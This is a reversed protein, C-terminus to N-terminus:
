FLAPAKRQGGLSTIDEQLKRIDNNFKENLTGQTQSLWQEIVPTVASSLDSNPDIKVTFTPENISISGNVTLDLPTEPKEIQVKGGVDVKNLSNNKNQPNYNKWYELLKQRQAPDQQMTQDIAPTYYRKREAEIKEPTSNFLKAQAAAVNAPLPKYGNTNAKNDLNKNVETIKGNLSQLQSEFIKISSTANEIASKSVELTTVQENYQDILQKVPDSGQINARKLSENSVPKSGSISKLIDQLGARRQEFARPSEFIGKNKFDMMPDIKEQIKPALLGIQENATKVGNKAGAQSIIAQSKNKQADVQEQALISKASAGEIISKLSDISSALTDGISQIASNITNNLDTTFTAQEKQIDKLITTIEDVNQGINQDKILSEIQTTAIERSRSAIDRYVKGSGPSKRAFYNAQNKIDQSRGSIAREKLPGLSGLLKENVSGGAFQVIESLLGAAGRGSSVKGPSKYMNSYQDFSEKSKQFSGQDLFGQIGGATSTDRRIQLIRQQINLNDAAIINAKKAEESLTGIQQNQSRTSDALKQQIQLTKDSSGGLNGIEKSLAGQTESPTLNQRSIELLRDNFSKLQENSLAQNDGEKSQNLEKAFSRVDEFMSQKSSAQINRVNKYLDENRQLKSIQSRVQNLSEGSASNEYLGVLNDARNLKTDRTNASNQDKFNQRFTESKIANDILNELNNNLGDLAVRARSAAKETELIKKMEADRVPSIAEIQKATNKAENASLFLATVFKSVNQDGMRNYISMLDENKLGLDKLYSILEPKKVDLLSVNIKEIAKDADELSNLFEKAATGPSFGGSKFIDGYGFTGAGLLENAKNAFDTVREKKNKEAQIRNIEEQLKKGDTISLLYARYENPLDKASSYLEKNLKVITDLSSKPDSYAENLKQLTDTYKQTSSAFKATEEKIKELNKGIQEGNDRFTKALFATASYLAAAGGAVLGIPGPILGVATLATGMGQSLENINNSLAKNDGVLQNAFGGILSIAFSAYVSKERFGELASKMNKAPEGISKIEKSSSSASTTLDKMQIDTTRMSRSLIKMVNTMGISEQSNMYTGTTASFPNSSFNPVFGLASAGKQLAFSNSVASAIGEPHDKKVANFNPQTKQDRVYLGLGPEFDLVGKGGMKNETKLAKSVPSFNPIFGNFKSTKRKNDKYLLKDAFSDLNGKSLSNKFDGDQFSSLGKAGKFRSAIAKIEPGDLDMNDIESTNVRNISAKIASEFVQGTSAEVASRSLNSRVYSEFLDSKVLNPRSTIGSIYDKAVGVLSTSVNDYLLDPIQENGGPFPFIPFKYFTGDKARGGGQFGKGGELDPYVLVSKSRTMGGEKKGRKEAADRETTRLQSTIINKKDKKIFVEGRQEVITRDNQLSKNRELKAIKAEAGALQIYDDKLLNRFGYQQEVKSKFNPVFGSNAYPNFGHAAEFNRKYMEGASSSAPPMIAPQKMGPFKKIKEASNYTVTGYDPISKKRVDGPDYGGLIAGMVEQNNSLNPIFGFAKTKVAAGKMPGTAPVRVGSAMLTQSLSSAVALQKQMAITEQEILSLIQQHLSTTNLNGKNIQEIIQPNSGILNLIQTQLTKQEVSQTNLGTIQKFADATFVTLREFIKILSAAGLLLGPGSLFNGLGTSLGQGIKAGINESDKTGFNELIANLGGLAKELAPAFALNGIETSTSQLNVLTKNLTASLTQNLAENRRNAEDTAGGSIGLARSYISYEKSLDGLTAKLINIQFVGGVTEAIQAKQVSGLTDYQKALQNLIQILPLINGEQDKTAVGIQELADLTSPRQLRTFITKFSNGIVSGGRSTVQQASTVLAILQDFSVGVDSASSGVRKISEALDASSVAFSADVAALKNVIETSNLASSSFSNIAATLAEVSSVTDLGSLRTLILADSTRKLTDELSLGQRSFEAASKAVESFSLGTNKAIDFLKSGFQSLSKESVNLIVNIDTLAKEVQIVSKITESFAKQVAFIAGASAGFAIVRANSAALSKEFEGLQGTIKGLPQSFGKTNLTLAQNAVRAIDKELPKTNGLVDIIINDGGQAM